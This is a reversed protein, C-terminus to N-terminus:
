SLIQQAAQHASQAIDKGDRLSEKMRTDGQRITNERDDRRRQTERLNYEHVTRQSSSNGDLIRNVGDVGTAGQGIGNAISAFKDIVEKVGQFAGIFGVVGAGVHMVSTIITVILPAWSNYTSKVEQVHLDAQLTLQESHANDYRNARRMLLAVIRLALQCMKEHNAGSGKSQEDEYSKYVKELETEIFQFKPEVADIEKTSM